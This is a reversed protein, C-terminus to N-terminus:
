NVKSSLWIIDDPNIDVEKSAISDAAIFGDSKLQRLWPAAAHRSKDLKDGGAEAIWEKIMPTHVLKGKLVIEGGSVKSRTVKMPLMVRWNGTANLNSRPVISVVVLDGATVKRVADSTRKADADAVLDASSFGNAMNYEKVVQKAAQRRNLDGGTVYHVEASPNIEKLREIAKQAIEDTAYKDPVVLAVLDEMRMEFPVNVEASEMRLGSIRQPNVIQDVPISDGFEGGWGKMYTDYKSFRDHGGGFDHGSFLLGKGMILESRFVFVNENKSLYSVGGRDNFSSFVHNDLGSGIDGKTTDGLYIKRGHQGRRMKGSISMISGYDVIEALGEPGYGAKHIIGFEALNPKSSGDAYADQLFNPLGDRSGGGYFHVFPVRKELKSGFTVSLWNSVEEPTMNHFRMSGRESRVSDYLRMDDAIGISKGSMFLEKFKPLTIRSDLPGYHAPSTLANNRVVIDVTRPYFNGDPEDSSDIGVVDIDFSNLRQQVKTMAEAATVGVRSFDKRSRWTTQTSNEEPQHKFLLLGSTSGLNSQQIRIDENYIFDKGIAEGMRRIKSVLNKQSEESGSGGSLWVVDGDFNVIAGTTNASRSDSAEEVVLRVSLFPGDGINNDIWSKAERRATNVAENAGSPKKTQDPTYEVLKDDILSIQLTTSNAARVLVDNAWSSYGPAGSEWTTQKVEAGAELMLGHVTSREEPRVRARSEFLTAPDEVFDPSIPDPGKKYTYFYDNELPSDSVFVARGRDPTSSTLISLAFDAGIDQNELAIDHTGSEGVRVSESGFNLTRMHDHANKAATLDYETPKHASAKHGHELWWNKYFEQYVPGQARAAAQVAVIAALWPDTKAEVKQRWEQMNDALLWAPMNNDALELAVYNYFKAKIDYERSSFEMFDRYRTYADSQVFAASESDTKDLVASSKFQNNGDPFRVVNTLSDDYGGNKVTRSYFELKIKGATEFVSDQTDAVDLLQQADNTYRNQQSKSRWVAKLRAVKQQDGRTGIKSWYIRGKYHSSDITLGVDAAALRFAYAQVLAKNNSPRISLVADHGGRIRFIAENLLARLVGSKAEDRRRSLRAIQGKNGGSSGPDGPGPDLLQYLDYEAESVPLGVPVRYPDYETEHELEFSKPIRNNKYFFNLWGNNRLTVFARTDGGRAAKVLTAKHRSDHGPLYRASASKTGGCGCNCTDLNPYPDVDTYEDVIGQMADIVIGSGDKPAYDVSNIMGDVSEYVDQQTVFKASEPKFAQPPDKKEATITKELYENYLNPKAPEPKPLVEPAEPQVDPKVVEPKVDPTPAEVAQMESAVDVADPAAVENQPKNKDPVKEAFKAWGKENLTATADPDGLLSAKVLNSKHRSDHGPLYTSKTPSGCGCACKKTDKFPPDADLSKLLDDFLSKNEKLEHPEISLGYIGSYTAGRIEWGDKTRWVYASKVNSADKVVKALDIYDGVELELIRRFTNRFRGLRNRPHLDPEWTVTSAM